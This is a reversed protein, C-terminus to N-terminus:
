VAPAVTRFTGTRSANLINVTTSATGLTAGGTPNSLTVRFSTDNTVLGDRLIPIPITKVTENEVFALTGSVAQYDQGAKATLDSTAYDVTIPGLAMDNGRLVAM